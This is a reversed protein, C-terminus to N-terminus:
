RGSRLITIVAPLPGEGPGILARFAYRGGRTRVVVGAGSPAPRLSVVHTAIEELIAARAAEYALPVIRAQFALVSHPTVFVPGAIMGREM